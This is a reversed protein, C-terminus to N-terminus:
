EEGEIGIHATCEGPELTPSCGAEDRIRTEDVGETVSRNHCFGRAVGVEAAREEEVLESARVPSRSCVQSSTNRTKTPKQKLQNAEAGSTSSTFHTLLQSM